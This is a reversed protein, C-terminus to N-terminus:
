PRHRGPVRAPAGDAGDSRRRHARAVTETFAGSGTIRWIDTLPADAALHEAFESIGGEFQFSTTHPEAGREDTVDIALGPV